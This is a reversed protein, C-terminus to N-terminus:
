FSTRTNGRSPRHFIADAIRWLREAIQFSYPVVNYRLWAIWVRRLMHHKGYQVGYGPQFIKCLHARQTEPFQRIEVLDGIRNDM